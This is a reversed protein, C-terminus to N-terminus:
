SSTNAADGHHTFVTPLSPDHALVAAASSTALISSDRGVALRASLV